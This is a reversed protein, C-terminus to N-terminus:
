PLAHLLAYDELGALRACWVHAHPYDQAALATRAPALAAVGTATCRAATIPYELATRNVRQLGYSCPLFICLDCHSYVDHYVFVCLIAICSKPLCPLASLTKRVAGGAYKSHLSAPGPSRPPAPLLYLVCVYVAQHTRM